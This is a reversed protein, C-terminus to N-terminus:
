VPSQQVFLLKSISQGRVILFIGLMQINPIRFNNFPKNTVIISDIKQLFENLKM